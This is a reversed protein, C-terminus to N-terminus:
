AGSVARFYPTSVYRDGRDPLVVVVRKGRLEPRAALQLVAAVAAGSSIGVLLGEERALRRAAAVAAEEDIAVVEDLLARDLVRPVFGAGLGQISHFGAPAGSLVAAGTPEVAVVRVGPRRRKLVRAVGTITGGTGVGAVFLDIEGGADRWIEEGTTREHADANAPNDFQRLLVAGPMTRGILEAQEVAAQMLVGPTLIVEAGYSRLLAQREASMAEPMTLILRYGRAAAIMALAIGTNGSTPEVITAGPALEGRRAAEDVMARAIRDKVSGGPNSGELKACITVGAARSLAPLTVLPTGGIADAVGHRPGPLPAAPPAPAVVSPPSM